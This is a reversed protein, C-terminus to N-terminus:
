TLDSDTIAALNEVLDLLQQRHNRPKKVTLATLFFTFVDISVASFATKTTAHVDPLLEKLVQAVLHLDLWERCHSLSNLHPLSALVTYALYIHQLLFLSSALIFIYAM